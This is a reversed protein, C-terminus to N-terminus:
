SLLLKKIIPFRKPHQFGSKTSSPKGGKKAGKETQGQASKEFPFPGSHPVQGVVAGNQGMKTANVNKIL